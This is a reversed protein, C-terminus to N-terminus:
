KLRANKVGFKKWINKGYKIQSIFIDDEIQKMQFSFFYTLEGVMIMEFKTYKNFLISWM